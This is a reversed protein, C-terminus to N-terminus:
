SYNVQRFVLLFVGLPKSPTKKKLVSAFAPYM